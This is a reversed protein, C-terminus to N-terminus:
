SEAVNRETIQGTHRRIRSRAAERADSEARFLTDLDPDDVHDHDFLVERVVETIMPFSIDENLFGDVAVENAGNLVAGSTGGKEGTYYGLELAPFMENRPAEFTLELGDSLSMRNGPVEERDPYTLAYQIPTKMDAPGMHAEFTGDSLEVMAHVTSQPHVVVDLRDMDVGFLAQAEVLEIAKNMLTASDVTIKEGMDWTPHDLADEPTAERIRDATWTRFPGGSATLILRRVETESVGELLQFLAAHESDVPLLEADHEEVLNRIISGAILLSEKNALALRKGSSVAALTGPLGAAGMVANLVVEAAPLSALTELGDRGCVIRPCDEGATLRSSLLNYLRDRDGEDAIAVVMPDFEVVQDALAECSSGAGLGLVRYSGSRDRILDLTQQGISGTSGLLVLNKVRQPM